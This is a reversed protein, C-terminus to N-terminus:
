KVLRRAEMFTGIFRNNYGVQNVRKKRGALDALARGEEITLSFPKEVFVHLNKELAYRAAEGHFRTPTAVIVCDLNAEDIMEKNDQYTDIQTHQKLTSLVFGSTDCVAAVKVDNLANMIAYHSIGMKGLGIIGARIM